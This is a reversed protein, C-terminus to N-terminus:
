TPLFYIKFVSLQVGTIMEIAKIIILSGVLILLGVVAYTITNRAQTVKQEEDGATLWLFGGYLLYVFVLLGALTTAIQLVRAIIVEIGTLTPVNCDACGPVGTIYHLGEEWKELAM